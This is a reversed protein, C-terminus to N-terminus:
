RKQNPTKTNMKTTKNPKFMKKNSNQIKKKQKNIQISKM